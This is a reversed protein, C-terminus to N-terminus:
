LNIVVIRLIKNRIDVFVCSEYFFVVFVLLPRVYRYSSSGQSSSRWVSFSSTWKHERTSSSALFYQHSLFLFCTFSISLRTSDNFSSGSYLPIFSLSRLSLTMSSRLLQPMLVAKKPNFHANLLLITLHRSSTPSVGQDLRLSCMHNRYQDPKTQEAIITLSNM